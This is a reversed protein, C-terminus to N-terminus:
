FGCDVESLVLVSVMVGGIRNTHLQNFVTYMLLYEGQQKIKYASCIKDMCQSFKDWTKHVIKISEVCQNRDILM